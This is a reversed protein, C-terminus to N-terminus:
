YYVKVLKDRFYLSYRYSNCLLILLANASSILSIGAVYVSELLILRDYRHYRRYLGSSFILELYFEDTSIFVAQFLAFISSM